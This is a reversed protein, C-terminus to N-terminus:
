KAIAPVLMAEGCTAASAASIEDRCRAGRESARTCAMSAQRRLVDSASGAPVGNKPRPRM